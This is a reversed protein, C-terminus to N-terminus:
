KFLAASGIRGNMVEASEVAHIVEWVSAIMAEAEEASVQKSPQLVQGESFGVYLGAKRKDFMGKVANEDYNLTPSPDESFDVPLGAMRKDFISRTADAYDDGFTAVRHNYAVKLDHNRFAKNFEALSVREDIYDAVIQSKGMEEYATYALCYARAFAGHNLLIEAEKVLQHANDKCAFYLEFCSEVSLKLNETSESMKKTTKM